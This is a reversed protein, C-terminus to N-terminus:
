RDRHGPCRRPQDNRDGDAVSNVTGVTAAGCSYGTPPSVSVAYGTSNSFPLGSFTYLGSANTVATESISNGYLRYGGLTVTVNALGPRQWRSQSRYQCRRLSRWYRSVGSGAPNVGANDGDIYRNQDHYFNNPNTAVPGLTTIVTGCVFDLQYFNQPVLRIPFSHGTVEVQTVSQFVTSFTQMPPM